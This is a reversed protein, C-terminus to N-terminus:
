DGEKKEETFVAIASTLGAVGTTILETNEPSLKIGIIGLIISVLVGVTSKEKLRDLWFM